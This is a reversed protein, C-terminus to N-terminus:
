LASCSKAYKMVTNMAAGTARIVPRSCAGATAPRNPVPAPRSLRCTARVMWKPTSIQISVKMTTWVRITNTVPKTPLTLWMVSPM